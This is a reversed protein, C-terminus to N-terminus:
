LGKHVKAKKIIRGWINKDQAKNWWTEAKLLKLEKIMGQRRCQVCIGDLAQIM